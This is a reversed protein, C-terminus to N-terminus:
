WVFYVGLLLSFNTEECSVHANLNTKKKQEEKTRMHVVISHEILPVFSPWWWNVFHFIKLKWGIGIVRVCWFHRTFHLVFLNDFMKMPEVPKTVIPAHNTVLKRQCEQADKRIHAIVCWYNRNKTHWRKPETCRELTKRDFYIDNWWEFQCM